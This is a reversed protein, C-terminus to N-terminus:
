LALKGAYTSAARGASRGTAMCATILYGGTPAEWDLMEGACFVGPRDKLMLSSTLADFRVGGATSIAEDIPRPGNHQVPLHKILSALDNPFPRGFESLLALRLPDFRLTKRLHNSLSTKGRPKKLAAAVKEVSWDPLLDLYLAAGERMTRSVIYVGGGEIGRKSVIFEGRTTVGGASLGVSKVPKGLHSQMYDSWDVSFGMNAPVFPRVADPLHDVWAGDSGL